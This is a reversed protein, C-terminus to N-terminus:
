WAKWNKWNKGHSLADKLGKLVRLRDVAFLKFYKLCVELPPESQYISIKNYRNDLRSKYKSASGSGIVSAPSDNASYGKRSSSLIEM